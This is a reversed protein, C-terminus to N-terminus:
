TGDSHDLEFIGYHAMKVEAGWSRSDLVAMLIGTGQDDLSQVKMQVAHYRMRRM